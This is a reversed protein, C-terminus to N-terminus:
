LDQACRFGIHRYAKGAAPYMARHGNRCAEASALFSGGRVVAEVGAEPRKQARARKGEEFSVLWLDATWEAANGSMGLVGLPTRDDLFEEIPRVGRKRSAQCNIKLADFGQARPYRRGQTGAAAAEWELETPLRKGAWRAFARASSWTVGVVPRDGWAEPFVPAGQEDFSWDLPLHQQRLSEPQSVLFKWFEACSVETRDLYFAKVKVRRTKASDPFGAVRGFHPGIPYTEAPVLLMGPPAQDFGRAFREPHRLKEVELFVEELEQTARRFEAAAKCHTHLSQNWWEHFAFQNRLELRRRPWATLPSDEAELWARICAPLEGNAQRQYAQEAASYAATLAAHAEDRRVTAVSLESERKELLRQERTPAAPEQAPAQTLLLPFLALWSALM